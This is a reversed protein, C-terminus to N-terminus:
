VYLFFTVRITEASHSLGVSLTSIISSKEGVAFGEAAQAFYDAAGTGLQYAHAYCDFLAELGAAFLQAVRAYGKIGEGYDFLGVSVAYYEPVPLFFLLYCCM